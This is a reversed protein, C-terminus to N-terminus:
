NESPKEIHDVRLVEISAKQSELKLGPQQQVADFLSIDEPQPNNNIRFEPTAELKINYKGTLGTKDLVPRDAFLGNMIFDAVSEMTAESMVINQNRGNVGCRTAANMRVCKLALWVLAALAAAQWFTNFVATFIALLMM